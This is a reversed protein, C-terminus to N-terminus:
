LFNFIKGIYRGQIFIFIIIFNISLCCVVQELLLYFFLSICYVNWQNKRIACINAFSASRGKFM